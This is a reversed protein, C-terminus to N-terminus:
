FNFIILFLLYYWYHRDKASLFQSPIMFNTYRKTDILTIEQSINENSPLVSDDTFKLNKSVFVRRCRSIMSQVDVSPNSTSEVFCLNEFYSMKKELSSRTISNEVFALTNNNFSLQVDPYKNKWYELTKLRRALSYNLHKLFMRRKLRELLNDDNKVEIGSADKRLEFINEIIEMQMDQLSKVTKLLVKPIGIFAGM